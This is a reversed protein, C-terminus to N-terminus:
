FSFYSGEHTQHRICAFYNPIIFSSTFEALFTFNKTQHSLYRSKPYPFGLWLVIEVKRQSERLNWWRGLVYIWDELMARPQRSSLSNLSGLALLLLLVSHGQLGM